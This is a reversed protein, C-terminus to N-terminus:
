INLLVTCRTGKGVESEISISGGLRDVITKVICLGVGSRKTLICHRYFPQYLKADGDPLDMGKGDDEIVMKLSNNNKESSVKINLKEQELNHVLANQILHRLLSFLYKYNLQVSFSNKLDFQIFSNSEEIENILGVKIEEFLEEIQIHNIENFDLTQFDVLEVLSNILIEMKQTAGVMMQLKNNEFHGLNNTRLLLQSYGRLVFLPTRLDHGAAHVVKSIALSPTKNLNSELKNQSDIETSFTTNKQM